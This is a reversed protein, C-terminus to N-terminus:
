GGVILPSDDEAAEEKEDPAEAPAGPQQAQMEEEFADLDKEVIKFREELTGFVKETLVQQRVQEMLRPQSQYFNRLQGAELEPTRAAQKEFFAGLDEDGADLEETEILRDRLLMWHAQQQAESRRQKRFVAEDFGEPLEGENEQKVNEVFSDLFREVVSPPVPVPHLERMREVTQGQFVEKGRQDWAEQLRQKLDTRFDEVSEFEGETADEIFADDLEPLERQKVDKLAVEFRHAHAEGGSHEGHAQAHSFSFRVTEGAHAGVVAERLEQLMPTQEVQPSDLFLEQDEDKKGIVPTSTEADIEQIDFLVFDTESAAEDTPILTAESRRLNDIEREVEDETVDHRLKTLEEDSLDKLEVPPRVGYRVVARLDGGAEYDLETIEPRGLVEEDREENGAVEGEFAEQVFRQAVQLGVQPGFRKKIISLPVKGKRFGKMDIQGRQAKLARNLDAELEDAGARIELEREVPSVEQLTTQM